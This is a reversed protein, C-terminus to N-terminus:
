ATRRARQTALQNATTVITSARADVSYDSTMCRRHGAEAIRLREAPHALYHSIKAALEDGETFMVCERGEEFFSQAEETREHLMFGGVAPIEFTRATTVDGSDSDPRRGVLIAISIASARIAKAYETGQVAQRMVVGDLTSSAREWQNGWIKLHLGPLAGRVQALLREKKPTWTGIFSAECRYRERDRADLAALMHTEPDYAHPMFSANCIGFERHMDALRFSKTTFVWDYRPLARPIYPGHEAFGVDPYFNIAVTGLARIVDITEAAVYSGKFVFLLEPRFRRAEAILAQQYDAVLLPRVLRRVAKLVPHRWGTSVFVEDSVVAVSHGARRFARVFAYDNAGQWTHSVALIRMPMPRVVATAGDMQAPEESSLAAACGAVTDDHGSM